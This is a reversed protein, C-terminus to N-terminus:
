EYFALPCAPATTLYRVICSYLQVADMMVDRTGQPRRRLRYSDRALRRTQPAPHRGVAIVPPAHNLGLLSAACRLQKHAHVIATSNRLVMYRHTLHECRSSSSHCQRSRMQSSSSHCHRSRVRCVEGLLWSMNSVHSEMMPKSAFSHVSPHATNM